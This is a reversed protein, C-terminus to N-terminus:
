YKPICKKSCFDDTFLPQGLEAGRQLASSPLRQNETLRRGSSFKKILSYILESTKKERNLIFRMNMMLHHVQAHISSTAKIVLLVM